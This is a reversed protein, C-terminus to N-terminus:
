SKKGLSIKSEEGALLRKINDEHRWFVLVAIILYTMAIQWSSLMLALFPTAAAASLAALSSYRFKYAVGLWILFACLGVPWSLALIVGISTAVGKGGKFALWPSFIHGTIAMVGAVLPLISDDGGILRAIIVALAGKGADCLLTALALHKKGTRLVNTAGVNGSGINRIDGLGYSLTILLGFPVSGFAFPLALGFVLMSFM